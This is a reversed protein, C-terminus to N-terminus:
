WIKKTVTKTEGYKEDEEFEHNGKGHDKYFKPYDRKPDAHPNSTKQSVYEPPSFKKGPGCEKEAKRSELSIGERKLFHPPSHEGLGKTSAFDHLQKHSM